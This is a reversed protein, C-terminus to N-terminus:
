KDLNTKNVNLQNMQSGLLISKVEDQLPVLQNEDHFDSLLVDASMLKEINGWSKLRSMLLESMQNGVELQQEPTLMFMSPVMGNQHAMKDILQTRRANAVSADSLAYITANECVTSLQHFESNTESISWDINTSETNTVLMTGTESDEEISKNLLNTCQGVLRAIYVEDTAYMSTEKAIVELNSEARQLEMSKVFVSDNKEADYREDELYEIHILLNKEKKKVYFQKLSIENFVATLGGLFAPSTIFFRCRICNKEGLHGYPVPLYKKIKVEDNEVDGGQECRGGGMPCIGIDTFSFASPPHDANLKSFTLRDNPVLSDKLEEFKKNRIQQQIRLPAAALARKHASGLEDRIEAHGIKTYYITMVLRAHGVLKQVIHIPINADVVFATILSVRMAHPTYDSKYSGVTNTNNLKTTLPNDESEIQHLVYALLKFFIPQKYPQFSNPQRFLFCNVGRQELVRSGVETRLKLETWKTPEIIANYKSQWIRLKVMWYDFNDPSWPISYGGENRATKNTTFYLGLENMPYEKIFGQKKTRGALRGINTVWEVRGDKFVPVKKDAEGSDCWLIQQGRAPISLLTYLALFRTPSWMQYVKENHAGILDGTHRGERRDKEVYRYVCDPDNKDILSPDVDFWDKEILDTLHNLDSFNRAEIPLVWERAKVVSTYALVPKDSESLKNAKIELLPSQFHNLPNRFDPHIIVEDEDELTCLQSLCYDIFELIIVHFKSKDKDGFFSLFGEYQKHNVKATKLLFEEPREPYNNEIIFKCIFGLCTRRKHPLGRQAEQMFLDFLNGWLEYKQNIDKLSLPSKKGCFGYWKGLAVWTDSYYVAPVGPLKPDEKYRESYVEANKIGLKLTAQSAEEITEYPTIGLNHPIEKGLFGYWRGFTIWTDSYYNKPSGPLKPDKKYLRSYEPQSKFGLKIAAQSAEEITEYPTIPIENGLFGYWRGFVIWTDSYYADPTSPLKPDEKYSKKYEPLSKFGLKIAAQSAEEITEYRAIPVENGLFGYWKGFAIWTDSYSKNPSGPLKPDEKYRESYVAGTKIGLKIAAQSAEEISEYPMIGFNHPIENGLFGYWRGFAIWTDSYYNKPSGPLKPDKKYLRSYETQSKFGLKIAAQSAEEITEYHAIPVEDGLFCYWKGFAIWTDSYHTNPNSPLKPDKKYLKKYEQPSTIGLNIAAQSAEEITEYRTIPVENGLLGYWKRFAVWTDSYYRDPAGPLKPDEKYRKIYEARSKIGLKISAQSAEEITKYKGM